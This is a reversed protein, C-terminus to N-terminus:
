EISELKSIKARLRVIRKQRRTGQAPSAAILLSRYKSHLVLIAAGSAVGAVGFGVQGWITLDVRELGLLVGSGGIAVGFLTVSHGLMTSTYDIEGQSTM